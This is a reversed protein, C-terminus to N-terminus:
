IDFFSDLMKKFEENESTKSEKIQKDFGIGDQIYFKEPLTNDFILTEIDLVEGKKYLIDTSSITKLQIGLQITSYLRISEKETLFFEKQKKLVFHTILINKIYKPKIKKWDDFELNKVQVSDLCTIICNLFEQPTKPEFEKDEFFLNTESISFGDVENKSLNSLLNIYFQDLTYNIAELCLDQMKM